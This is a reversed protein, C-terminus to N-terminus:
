RDRTVPRLESRRGRRVGSNRLACGCALSLMALAAGLVLVTVGNRM